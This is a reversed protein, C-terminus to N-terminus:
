HIDVLQIELDLDERRSEGGGGAAAVAAAAEEAAAAAAVVGTGAAGVEGAPATMAPKPKM